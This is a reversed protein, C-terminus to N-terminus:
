RQYTGVLEGKALIHGQMKELLAKKDAGAPLDIPTDLAYIQFHYHHIGHGPPPLPGRYGITQGSPWSNRGQCAGVPTQLREKAPVGEPLGEETPPIKYIVWHVWPEPTPADPDDCILALERTREPVNTWCLPPSLDKGEGTYQKPIPEGAAFADCQIKITM